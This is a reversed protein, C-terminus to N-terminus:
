GVYTSVYMGRIMVTHKISKDTSAGMVCIYQGADKAEALGIVLTSGRNLGTRTVEVSIRDDNSQILTDMALFQPTGDADLKQWMM